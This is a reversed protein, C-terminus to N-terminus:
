KGKRVASDFFGTFNVAWRAQITDRATDVFRLDPEIKVRPVLQYLTVLEDGVRRYITGRAAGPYRILLTNKEGFLGAVGYKTTNAARTAGKKLRVQHFLEKPTWGKRIIGAGTRPVNETPVAVSRGLFPTKTRETEFKGFIDSRGGPSEIKVTAAPKAMTAVPKIKVSQKLFQPRRIKFVDAMHTRQAKQFEEATRNIALYTARPILESQAFRAWNSLEATRIDVTVNM